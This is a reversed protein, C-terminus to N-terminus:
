WLSQRQTSVLLSLLSLTTFTRKILFLLLNRSHSHSEDDNMVGSGWGIIVIVSIIIIGIESRLGVRAWVGM